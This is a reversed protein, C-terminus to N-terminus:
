YSTMLLEGVRGRSAAKCSVQRPSVVENLRFQGYLDRIERTDSNSVMVNAGGEAWRLAADRLREQDALAFGNPQYSNYTEHYPPDCYVFDDDGCAITQSFDGLLITAKRLARSAERLRESDCINPRKYTGVPVNFQGSKNVRYLGNYCTKNLYIFRAARALADVPRQSRIEGYYEKGNHNSAHEQLKGILAEVEHKVMRYALVLEENTDCLYAQGIRDAFAFYVAGGGVFPEWYTDITRPLHKTITPLLGRKGGVWKVFPLASASDARPIPPPTIPTDSRMTSSTM